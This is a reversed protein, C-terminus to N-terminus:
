IDHYRGGRFATMKEDVTIEEGKLIGFLPHDKVSSSARQIDPIITGKIKGRYLIEVSENRDLAKLIDNLKYRLDVVTAKM